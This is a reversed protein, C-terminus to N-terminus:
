IGIKGGTPVLGRYGDEGIGKECQVCFTQKSSGGDNATHIFRRVFFSSSALLSKEVSARQADQNKEVRFARWHVFAAARLVALVAM